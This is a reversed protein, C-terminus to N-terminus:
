GTIWNDVHFFDCCISLNVFMEIMFCFVAGISSDSLVSCSYSSPLLFLFALTELRDTMLSHILQFMMYGLGYLLSIVVSSIVVSLGEPLNVFMEILFCDVAGISSGSSVYCSFLSPLLFLSVLTELHTAWQVISLNFCPIMM